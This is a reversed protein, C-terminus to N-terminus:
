AALALHVLNLHRISNVTLRIEDQSAPEADNFLVEVPMGLYFSLKLRIRRISNIEGKLHTVSELLRYHIVRSVTARSENLDNAIKEISLERLVLYACIENGTM